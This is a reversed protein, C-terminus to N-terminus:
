PIQNAANFQLRFTIQGIMPKEFIENISMNFRMYSTKEFIDSINYIM